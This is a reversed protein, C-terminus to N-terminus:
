AWHRSWRLSRRESRDFLGCGLSDACAGIQARALSSCQRAALARSIRVTSSVAEVMCVFAFVGQTGVAVVQVNEGLALTVPQNGAGPPMVFLAQSASFGILRSPRMAGSTAILRRIGLPAGISLQMDALSLSPPEDGGDGSSRTQTDTNLAGRQPRFHQFLFERQEESAIVAGARMLVTGHEDLVPWALPIGVPVVADDAQGRTTQGLSITM